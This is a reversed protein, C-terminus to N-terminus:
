LLEQHIHNYEHFDLHKPNKTKNVNINHKNKPNTKYSNDQLIKIFFKFILINKNIKIINFKLFIYVIAWLM